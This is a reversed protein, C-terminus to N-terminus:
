RWFENWSSYVNMTSRKHWPARAPRVPLITNLIRARCSSKGKGSSLLVEVMVLNITNTASTNDLTHVGHKKTAENEGVSNGTARVSTHVALLNRLRCPQAVFSSSIIAPRGMSELPPSSIRPLLLRLTSSDISTTSSSIFTSLLVVVVVVVVVLLLVRSEAAAVATGCHNGAAAASINWARTEM